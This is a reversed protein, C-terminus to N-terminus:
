EKPKFNKLIYQSENVTMELDVETIMPAPELEAKFDAYTKDEIKHLFFEWTSKENEIEIFEDVFEMFRGTVIMGDLLLFPSAYRTFLLDM